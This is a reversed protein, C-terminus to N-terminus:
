DIKTLAESDRCLAVSYSIRIDPFGSSSFVEALYKESIVMRKGLVHGLTTPHLSALVPVYIYTENSLM